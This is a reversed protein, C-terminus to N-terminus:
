PQYASKDGIDYHLPQFVKRATFYAFVLAIAVFGLSAERRGMGGLAVLYLPMTIAAIYGSRLRFCFAEKAAVFGLCLALPMLLLGGWPGGAVVQLPGGGPWGLYFLAALCALAAYYIRKLLRKYSGVYLHIFFVSLGTSAYLALLLGTFAPAPDEMGGPPALLLYAGGLMLLSSAGIGLRYLVVSVKDGPTLPQYQM